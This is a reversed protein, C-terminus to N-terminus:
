RRALNEMVLTNQNVGRSEGVLRGEFHEMSVCAILNRCRRVEFQNVSIRTCRFTSLGEKQNSVQIFM